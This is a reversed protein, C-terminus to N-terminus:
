CQRPSSPRPGPMARCRGTGWCTTPRGTPCGSRGFSTRCWSRHTSPARPSWAPSCGPTSWSWVPKGHPRSPRSPWGSCLVADRTSSRRPGWWRPVGAEGLGAALGQVEPRADGRRALLVGHVTEETEDWPAVDDPDPTTLQGHRVLRMEHPKETVLDARGALQSLEVLVEEAPFETADGIVHLRRRLGLRVGAVQLCQWGAAVEEMRGPIRRRLAWARVQEPLADCFYFVPEMTPAM